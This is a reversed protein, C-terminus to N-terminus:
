LTPHIQNSTKQFESNDPVSLKKVRDFYTLITLWSGM